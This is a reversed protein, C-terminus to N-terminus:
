EKKVFIASIRGEEQQERIVEDISIPNTKLSSISVRETQLTSLESYDHM